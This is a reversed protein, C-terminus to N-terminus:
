PLAQTSLGAWATDTFKASSNSYVALHGGSTTTCLTVQTNNECGSYTKCLSNSPDTTPSGTCKDFAAWTANNVVASTFGIGVCSGGPPCDTALSPTQGGAYPVITSDAGEDFAIVSLPRPLTCPCATNNTATVQGANALPDKGTVCRFDVPAVAAIVDAAECAMRYTMGGGNSGGSAYIRKPDVCTNAELYKIIDRAFQVDDIKDKEANDCCYGANWSSDGAKKSSDPYVSICGVSDCKAKWGSSGEQQSGTGGLPHFDIVVPAASKGTYGTPLRVIFTRSEGGSTISENNDGVRLTSTAPCAGSSGATASGGTGPNGGTAAGGTGTTGGTAPTGGTGKVGGSGGSGGTAPTGGTGIIGGTAPTGGTGKVGGSGSNGGTATAGGTGVTGGTAPAGGTGPVGGTATVGGTGKVGGTSTSGGTGNDGGTGTTGGGGSSGCSPLWLLVSAVVLSRAAAFCLHRPSTM